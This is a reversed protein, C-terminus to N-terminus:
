NFKVIIGARYAIFEDNEDRAEYAIHVQLVQKDFVVNEADYRWIETFQLLKIKDRSYRSDEIERTKVEDISMPTEETFDIATAKGQYISQFINNVLNQYDIKSLNEAEVDDSALFSVSYTITDCTAFNLDGRNVTIQQTKVPQQTCSTLSFAVLIFLLTRM